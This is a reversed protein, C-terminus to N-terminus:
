SPNEEPAVRRQRKQRMKERVYFGAATGAAGLLLVRRWRIHPLSSRKLLSYGTALVPLLKQLRGSSLNQPHFLNTLNALASGAGLGALGAATKAIAQVGLRSRVGEKSHDIALRYARCQLILRQKRQELTEHASLPERM